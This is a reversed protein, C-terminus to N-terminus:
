DGLAFLQSKPAQLNIICITITAQEVTDLSLGVSIMNPNDKPPMGKHPIACSQYYFQHDHHPFSAGYKVNWLQPQTSFIDGAGQAHM